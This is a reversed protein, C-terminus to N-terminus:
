GRWSATPPPWSRTFRRASRRWRRMCASRATPPAACAPPSRAPRARSPRWPAPWTEPRNASCPSPAASATSSAWWWAPRLNCRRSPPPSRKPRRARRRPWRSSRTPSSPAAEITANLALLNTQAAIAGIMGVMEGIRESATVLSQIAAGSAEVATAATEASERSRATRSSVDRASAAMDHSASAIATVGTSAAKADTVARAVEDNMGRAARAMSQASRQLEGATAEVSDIVGAVQANFSAVVGEMIRAREASTQERQRAQDEEMARVSHSNARFVELTRALAGIEDRRKDDTVKAELDGQSLAEMARTVRSLPRTIMLGCTFALLCGLAAGAAVILWNLRFMGSMAADVDERSTHADDLAFQVLRELGKRISGELRTMEHPTKITSAPATGLLTLANGKWEAIQADVSANFDMVVSDATSERLRGLEHEVKGVMESFTALTKTSDQFRIGQQVDALLDSAEKFEGWASRAADVGTLPRSTAVGILDAVRNLNWTTIGAQVIGLAIVLGFALLMRKLISM